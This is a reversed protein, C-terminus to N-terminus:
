SHNEGQNAGADPNQHLAELATLVVDYGTANQGSLAQTSQCLEVYLTKFQGTYEQSILAQEELLRARETNFQTAAQSTPFSIQGETGILPQGNEDQSAYKVALEYENEALAQAAKELRQVLRTRARSAAPPLTAEALYTCTAALHRNPIALQTM